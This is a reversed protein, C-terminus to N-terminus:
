RPGGLWSDAFAVRWVHGFKRARVGDIVAEVTGDSALLAHREFKKRLAGPTVGLFEAAKRLDRWSERTASPSTM